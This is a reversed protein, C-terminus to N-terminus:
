MVHYLQRTRSEGVIHKMRSSAFQLCNLFCYTFLLFLRPCVLYQVIDKEKEIGDDYNCSCKGDVSEMIKKREKDQWRQREKKEADLGGM